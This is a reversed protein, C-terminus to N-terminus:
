FNLRLCNHIVNVSPLCIKWVHHQLFSIKLVPNSDHWGKRAEAAERLTTAEFLPSSIVAFGEHLNTPQSNINKHWRIIKSRDVLSVPVGVV